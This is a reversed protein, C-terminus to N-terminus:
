PHHGRANYQIMEVVHIWPKLPVQSRPLPCLCALLCTSLGVRFARGILTLTLTLALFCRIRVRIIKRHADDNDHVHESMGRMCLTSVYTSSSQQVLVFNVNISTTVLQRKNSLPGSCHDLIIKTSRALPTFHNIVDFM